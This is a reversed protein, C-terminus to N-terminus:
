DLILIDGLAVRHVLKDTQVVLFESLELFEFVFLLFHALFEFSNDFDCGRSHTLQRKIVPEMSLDLILSNADKIGAMELVSSVSKPSSSLCIFLCLMM